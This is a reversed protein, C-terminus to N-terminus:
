LDEGASPLDGGTYFFFNGFRLVFAISDDNEPEGTAIPCQGMPDLWIWKNNAVLFGAPSNNPALAANPGSNWLLEEGNDAPVLSQRDRDIGPPTVQHGGNFNVQGDVIAAYATPEHNTPGIDIVHTTHYLGETRVAFPIQTKLRHWAARIGPA